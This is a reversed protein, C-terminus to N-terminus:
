KEGNVRRWVEKEGEQLKTGAWGAWSKVGDWVKEPDVGFAAKPGDDFRSVTDNSSSQGGGYGATYGYQNSSLTHSSM